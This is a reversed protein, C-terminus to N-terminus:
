WAFFSRREFTMRLCEGGKLPVGSWSEFLQGHGCCDAAQTQMVIHALEGFRQLHADDGTTAEPRHDWFVFYDDDIAIIAGDISAAEPTDASAAATALTTATARLSRCVDLLRARFTAADPTSATDRLGVCVRTLGGYWDIADDFLHYAARARLAAAPADPSLSPPADPLPEPFAAWSGSTATATGANASSEADASSAPLFMSDHVLAHLRGGVSRLSEDYTAPSEYCAIAMMDPCAAPRDVPAVAPFYATLGLERLLMVASPVFVSGLREFFPDGGAVSAGPPSPPAAAAVGQVGGSRFGCWVRVAGPPVAVRGNMPAAGKALQKATQKVSWAFSEVHSRLRQLRRLYPKDSSALLNSRQVPPDMSKLHDEIADIAESVDVKLEPPLYVAKDRAASGERAPLDQLPLGFQELFARRGYIPVGNVVTALVDRDEATFFVELASDSDIPSEVIFLDASAGEEIRGLV